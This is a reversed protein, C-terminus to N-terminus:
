SSFTLGELLSEIEEFNVPKRLRRVPLRSLGAMEDDSDFHGSIVVFEFDRDSRASLERVLEVGDRGPMRMDTVILTIDPDEEVTQLAQDVNHACLADYGLIDMLEALEDLIVPEDDVLLIRKHTIM